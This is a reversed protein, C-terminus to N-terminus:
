NLLSNAAKAIQIAAMEANYINKAMTEIATAAAAVADASGTVKHQVTRGKKVYNDSNEGTWNRQVKGFSEEMNDESITQISSAIDRLEEAQGMAKDYNFRIESETM